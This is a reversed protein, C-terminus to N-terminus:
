YDLSLGTRVFFGQFTMDGKSETFLGPNAADVFQVDGYANFWNQYEYGVSLSLGAREAISRTWDLGLAMEAVPMVEDSNQQRFDAVIDAGNNDTELYSVQRDGMVLSGAARGFISFGSGLLWRADAGIRPGFGSFDQTVLAQANTFDVGDYKVTLDQETDVFRLGSFLRLDFQQGLELAYGLELDTTTYDLTTNASATEARDNQSPHSLTSFLFGNDPREVSANGDSEISLWTLRGDVNGKRYGVAVRTNATDHYDVIALDGGVALAESDDVIAFDFVDSPNPEFFLVEGSLYLGQPRDSSEIALETEREIAEDDVSEDGLIQQKLSDIEQRLMEQQAELRTLQERLMEAETKQALAPSSSLVMAAGILSPLAARTLGKNGYQQQSMQSKLYTIM